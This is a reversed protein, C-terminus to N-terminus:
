TNERRGLARNASWTWEARNSRRTSPYSTNSTCRSSTQFHMNETKAKNDSKDQWILKTLQTLGMELAHKFKEWPVDEGLNFSDKNIRNATCRTWNMIAYTKTWPGGPFSPGDPGLPGDPGITHLTSAKLYRIFTLSDHLRLLWSFYRGYLTHVLNGTRGKTLKTSDVNRECICHGVLVNLMTVYNWQIVYCFLPM